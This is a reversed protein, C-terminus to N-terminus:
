QPSDIRINAYDYQHKHESGLVGHCRYWDYSRQDVDAEYPYNPNLLIVDRQDPGEVYGILLMM